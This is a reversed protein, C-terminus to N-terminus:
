FKISYRCSAALSASFYDNLTGMRLGSRTNRELPILPLDILSCSTAGATFWSSSIREANLYITFRAMPLISLLIDETFLM